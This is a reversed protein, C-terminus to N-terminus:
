HATPGAHTPVDLCKRGRYERQLSTLGVLGPIMCISAESEEVLLYVAALSCLRQGFGELPANQGEDDGDPLVNHLYETAGRLIRGQNSARGSNNKM